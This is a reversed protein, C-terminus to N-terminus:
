SVKEMLYVLNGGDTLPYKDIHANAAQATHFDAGLLTNGNCEAIISLHYYTNMTNENVIIIFQDRM